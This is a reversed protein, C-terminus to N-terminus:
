ICFFECCPSLYPLKTERLCGHFLINLLNTSLFGTNTGDGLQPDFVSAAVKTCLNRYVPRVGLEITFPILSIHFHPVSVGELFPTGSFNIADTPLMYRISGDKLNCIM